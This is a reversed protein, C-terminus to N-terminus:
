YWNRTKVDISKNTNINSDNRLSAILKINIIQSTSSASSIVTPTIIFNDVSIQKKYVLSSGAGSCANTITIIDTGLKYKLDDGNLKIQAYKQGSPTEYTYALCNSQTYVVSSAGSIVLSSSGGSNYGARLIDEKITRLADNVDQQLMLELSRKNAASHGSLFVSGVIGIALLGVASAILLEILSFGKANSM